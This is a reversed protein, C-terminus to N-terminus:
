NNRVYPDLAKCDKVYVWYHFDGTRAHTDQFRIEQPKHQKSDFQDPEDFVIGEDTFERSSGVIEWRLNVSATTSVDPKDVSVTCPTQSEDVTVQIKCVGPTCPTAAQAPQAAIELPGICCLVALAYHRSKM